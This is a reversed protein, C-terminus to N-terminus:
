WVMCLLMVPSVLGTIDLWDNKQTCCRRRVARVWPQGADNMDDDYIDRTQMNYKSFASAAPTDNAAVESGTTASGAASSGATSAAALPRVADLDVGGSRYHYKM